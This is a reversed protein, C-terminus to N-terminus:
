DLKHFLIADEDANRLGDDWEFGGIAQLAARAIVFPQTVEFVDNSIGAIM